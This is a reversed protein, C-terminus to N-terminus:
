SAVASAWMLERAAAGCGAPIPDRGDHWGHKVGAIWRAMAISRYGDFWHERLEDVLYGLPWGGCLARMFEGLAMCHRCGKYSVWTEEVRGQIRRYVEGVAIVRGCEDCGHPKHATPRTENYFLWPECDDVACM